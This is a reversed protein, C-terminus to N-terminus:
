LYKKVQAVTVQGRYKAPLYSDLEAIRKKSVKVQMPDNKIISAHKKAITESDYRM